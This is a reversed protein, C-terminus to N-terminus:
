ISSSVGISQGGATFHQSMQFPGSASFSQLHSSCSVVSSSITPHCSESLPCLKLYVGPTLSPCPPMTHQLGHTAFFWVCSLSQVSSFQVSNPSSPSVEHIPITAKYFLDLDSEWWSGGHSSVQSTPLRCCPLFGEGSYSWAPVRIKSKSDGFCHIFYTEQKDAM